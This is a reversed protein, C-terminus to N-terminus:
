GIEFLCQFPVSFFQLVSLVKIDMLWPFDNICEAAKRIWLRKAIKKAMKQVKANQSTALHRHVLFTLRPHM